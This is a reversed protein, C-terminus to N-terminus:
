DLSVTAKFDKQGVVQIHYPLSFRIPIEYKGKPLNSVDVYAKIDSADVKELQEPAGSLTINLNGSEPSLIKTKLGEGVGTVQLPITEFSKTKSPVMKVYIEVEKPEVKTANDRIPIPMRITIDHTVNELNLKPGMYYQLSDLYNQPGYVTVTEKKPQISEVAYGPPPGKDIELKLPVEKNPSNVAVQVNVVDPYVDVRNLPGKEGYAQLKVLKNISKTTEDVAVVAKVATVEDLKSESGRVFVKTPNVIPVSATYGKPFKGILDVQVPMERQIKEELKVDIKAPKIKKKVGAPLGDVQLPVDHHVGPGLKRLDAYIHYTPPLYELTYKDGYLILEVKDTMKVLEFRSKDYKAEVTVDRIRTSNSEDVPTLISADTVSIWLMIAVGISVLRLVVDRELWKSM